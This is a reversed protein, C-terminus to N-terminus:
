RWHGDVWYWGSRDHAWRGPAWVTFGSAPVLWSGPVWAYDNNVWAWHGGVWVYSAGPSATIVEVRDTPPGTQVYLVGPATQSHYCAGLAGAAILGGILRLRLLKSMGMEMIDM